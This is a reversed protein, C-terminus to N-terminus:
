HLQFDDIFYRGGKLAITAIAMIDGEAAEFYQNWVLTFAKPKRFIAILERAGPRGWHRQEALMNQFTDDSLVSKLDVSFQQSMARYDRHALGLMVEDMMPEAIRIIEADDLELLSM